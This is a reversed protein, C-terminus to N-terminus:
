SVSYAKGWASKMADSVNHTQVGDAIFELHVTAGSYPYTIRIVGDAGTTYTATSIGTGDIQLTFPFEIGTGATISNKLYFVSREDTSLSTDQTWGGKPTLVINAVPLKTSKGTKPDNNKADGDVWYKYVTLRVYEDINGSGSPNSVVVTGDYVKGPVLNKAKAATGTMDGLSIRIQKYGIESSLVKSQITLAARASGITSFLLLCIALVFLVTTVRSERKKKLTM